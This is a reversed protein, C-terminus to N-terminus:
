RKFFKALVAGDEGRYSPDGLDYPVDPPQLMHEYQICAVNQGSLLYLDEHATLELTIPRGCTTGDAGYGWGPDIYGASHVRFEGFQPNTARLEASFAPPAMVRERTALIYASGKRLKLMGSRPVIPEFFDAPDQDFSGLDLTQLSGRCEWGMREGVRVSLLLSDGDQEPKEIRRKEEDFLLGTRRTAFDLELRGLPTSQGEFLRMQVLAIGPSVRVPFCEPRVLVWLEGSWGEALTDYMGVRDALVRSSLFIRGTSSKPNARGHVGDPINWTGDIRILYPVGVELPHKLDHSDSGVTPFFERVTAGPPILFGSRMRYAEESLPLDISAPNLYRETVGTIDGLSLLDNLLQRPLVGQRIM